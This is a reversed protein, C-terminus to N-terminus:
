SLLTTEDETYDLETLFEEITIVNGDGDEGAETSSSAPFAQSLVGSSARALAGSGRSIGIIRNQIKQTTREDLREQPDRIPYRLM